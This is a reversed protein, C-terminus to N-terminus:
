PLMELYFVIPLPFGPDYPNSAQILAGDVANNPRWLDVHMEKRHASPVRISMSQKPTLSISRPLLFLKHPTHSYPLFPFQAM